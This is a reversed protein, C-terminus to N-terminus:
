ETPSISSSPQGCCSTVSATYRPGLLSGPRLQQSGLAPVLGKKQDRLPPIVRQLRSEHGKEWVLLSISDERCSVLCEITSKRHREVSGGGGGAKQGGCDPITTEGFLLALTLLLLGTGPSPRPARAMSTVGGARAGTVRVSDHLLWLSPEPEVRAIIEARKLM